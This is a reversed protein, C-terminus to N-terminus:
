CTGILTTNGIKAQKSPPLFELVEVDRFGVKTVEEMIDEVTKYCRPSDAQKFSSEKPLCMGSFIFSGGSVLTKKANTLFQLRDGQETLCHLVNISVAVDFSARWKKNIEALFDEHHLSLKPFCQRGLDIANESEDLGVYEYGLEHFWMGCAGAGCGIDLV